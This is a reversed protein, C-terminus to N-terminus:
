QTSPKKEKAKVDEAGTGVKAKEQTSVTPTIAPPVGAVEPSGSTSLATMVTARQEVAEQLRAQVQVGKDVQGQLFKIKEDYTHLQNTLNVISSRDVATTVLQLGRIYSCEQHYRNIDMIMMDVPYEATPKDMKALIDASLSKRQEDIAKSIATILTNRFMEANVHDRVGSTTTAAGSLISKALEGMVITSAAALGTTLSNLLTNAGAENNAARGISATCVDDSHKLLIAGLRNRYEQRQRSDASTAALEYATPGSVSSGPFRACDLNVVGINADKPYSAVFCRKADKGTISSEYSAVTRPDIRSQAHMISCAPSLLAACCLSAMRLLSTIQRNM